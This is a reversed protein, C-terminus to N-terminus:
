PNQLAPLTEVQSSVTPLHHHVRAPSTHQQAEASVHLALHSTSPRGCPPQLAWLVVRSRRSLPRSNIFSLSKSDVPDIMVYRPHGPSFLVRGNQGHDDPWSPLGPM